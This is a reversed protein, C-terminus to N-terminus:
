QGGAATLGKASLGAGWTFLALADIVEQDRSPEHMTVVILPVVSGPPQGSGVLVMKSAETAGTKIGDCWAYNLLRNHSEVAVAHDPPYRIVTSKIRVLSRFRSDLMAVRGLMALDAASSYHGPVPKGRCNVFHTNTLGMSAARANMLKVFRPESGAVYSALTIAADNASKVMLARLAQTISIRDGPRLGVGVGKRDLNKPVRAFRDLDKVRELVILATMIKTCSAPPLRRSSDKDWLVAGTDRDILIGSWAQVSPAPATAAASPTAAGSCATSSGLVAAALAVASATLLLLRLPPHRLSGLM